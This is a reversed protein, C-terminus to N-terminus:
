YDTPGGEADIISQIRDKMSMYLNAIFDSDISYWENEIDEILDENCDYSRKLKDKLACWVNEILSLNPSKAPWSLVEINREEFYDFIMPTTHISAGDQQFILAESDKDKVNKPNLTPLNKLLRRKLLSLYDESKFNGQIIELISTKAYTIAGWILVSPGWRDRQLTPVEMEEDVWFRQKKPNRQVLSEDTFVVRFWYEQPMHIYRKAWRLRDRRQIETVAWKEKSVRCNFGHAKLARWGTTKSTDVKSEEIVQSVSFDPNAKITEIIMEKESESLKPPRGSRSKNKVTGTEQWKRYITNCTSPPRHVIQSVESGSLGQRKWHVIELRISEPIEKNLNREQDEIEM